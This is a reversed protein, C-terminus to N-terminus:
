KIKRRQSELFTQDQVNMQYFIIMTIEDVDSKVYVVKMDEMKKDKAWKNIRKEVKDDRGHFIRCEM